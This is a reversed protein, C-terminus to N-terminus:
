DTIDDSDHRRRSLVNKGGRRSPTKKEQIEGCRLCEFDGDPDRWWEHAKGDFCLNEDQLM